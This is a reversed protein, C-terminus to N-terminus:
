RGGSVSELRHHAGTPDGPGLGGEELNAEIGLTAVPGSRTPEGRGRLARPDRACGRRPQGAPAGEMHRATRRTRTKAASRRRRRMRTPAHLRTMRRRTRRRTTRTAPSVKLTTTAGAARGPGPAHAQHEPAGHSRSGRGEPSVVPPQEGRPARARGSSRRWASKRREVRQRPRQSARASRRAPAVPARTTASPACGSRPTSLSRRTRAVWPSVGWPPARKVSPTSPGATAMCTARSGGAARPRSAVATASPTPSRLAGPSKRSPLAEPPAFSSMSSARRRRM